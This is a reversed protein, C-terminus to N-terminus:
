GAALAERVRKVTAGRRVHAGPALEAVRVEEILWRVDRRGAAQAELEHIATMREGDAVVHSALRELRQAAARLYREVDALRALGTAALMGPYVLRGLQRAVDRRAPGFAASAPLTDLRERVARAAELIQGFAVLTGLTTPRLGGRVHDQLAAFAGADWAPGGGGAILMDLAANTADEIVAESTDHPAATLALTLQMSLEGTVWRRPSAITLALLRRTGRAMTDAQEGTTECVRIGVADGEDVLAPFGRLGTGGALDVTRPLSDVDFDRMGHRALAPEAHELRATLAPRLQDRLADLSRGSALVAGDEDEVSFTMRLHAPLDDLSWDTAAIRVGRLREIADALVQLLPGSGPTIDALLAAATDPIPVLVRRVLKPLARLLAKVLETRFAPVLWEFGVDRAAGLSALPVHVEVGDASSGPDFRYSLALELPPQPQIWHSPRDRDDPAVDGEVLMDMPYDLLTPQSQRTRKWWRDFHSGSVIHAPVREDLFAAREQESALLNRRRARAELAEVEEVRRENERMFAHRQDWDGEVLARRIFLGRAAAQDIRGYQVTRSGVIALGYLTVRESAIAAARRRDWRPEGYSRKVLHEALTEVQRIDVAAATRGWLRTTEVLEAVMVWTPGRRALVSGPFIAFKAGRAGTYERTGGDKMGLHSLLGSLVAAHIEPAGAPADNFTVGAEHAADELQAVLDQWERVRLYHLFEAKCRKRVQSRSLEGELSRLYNWLNVYALFDSSRDTFRAHLQDAQGRQETPRERPDQISLAAAIVAVERACGLKDAELVMRGLRPDIPLRALNRGLPTLPEAASPDFAQLEHLLAVGDRVQRRDPPELFPFAEIEGLGLAAMQLIVSALNTRLVEPDTFEPRADFDDESYLRVCIGDALRGCRGKRQDASARSIPEVPLRQVKLRASYRSVRALGTDVVFRIGPVTVSTEAVNTALIVRRRSDAGVRGRGFVKQQDAAALRSYLPLVEVSPGLRGSLAEAADRIEREGSFFALVDGDREALLEEVTDALADLLEEDEGPSRYRVEVPYTRGSVEIIPAGGFHESFREPDITASTIILKLDPRRPLIRHLCGLLFDINLSREHAEDVIVTDYRRLLPDRRIEALLLGDTVLRVLTDESGRNDFRVAYGVVGGLPVDLEDAIRQAVTRAALRRPQTHAIAGRVGRGLELCLKPLQTTKGSGTEGAVVVVQHDRIAALLDDRRASVPLQPPYSVEPVSARRRQVRAQAEALQQDLRARSGESGPRLRHAQRRLRQEDRLTLERLAAEDVLPM